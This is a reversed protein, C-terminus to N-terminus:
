TEGPRSLSPALVVSEALDQPVLAQPELIWALTETVGHLFVSPPTPSVNESLLALLNRAASDTFPESTLGMPCTGLGLAWLLASTVGSGYPGVPAASVYALQEGLDAAARCGYLRPLEEPQLTRHLRQATLTRRSERETQALEHIIPYRGVLSEALPGPCASHHRVALHQAAEMSAVAVSSREGCYWCVRRWGALGSELGYQHQCLHEILLTQERVMEVSVRPDLRFVPPEPSSQTLEPPPGAFPALDSWTLELAAVGLLRLCTARSPAHVGTETFKVTGDSLKALRGLDKRSLGAKERRDRLLRGLKMLPAIDFFHPTPLELCRCVAAVIEPRVPSGRYLAHVASLPVQAHAALEPRSWNRWASAEQVADAFAAETRVRAAATPSSNKPSM